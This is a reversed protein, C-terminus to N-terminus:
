HDEEKTNFHCRFFYTRHFMFILETEISTM